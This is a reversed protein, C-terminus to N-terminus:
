RTRGWIPSMRISESSRTKPWPTVDKTEKDLRICHTYHSIAAFHGFNGFAILYAIRPSAPSPFYTRM